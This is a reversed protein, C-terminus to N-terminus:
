LFQLGLIGETLHANNQRGALKGKTPPITAKAWSLTLLKGSNSRSPPLQRGLQYYQDHYRVPM